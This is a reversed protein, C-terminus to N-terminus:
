PDRSLGHLGIEEEFARRLRKFDEPQSLPRVAGFTADAVSGVRWLTAHSRDSPDLAFAVQDGEKLGLAKRIAAPVTIRGKRM